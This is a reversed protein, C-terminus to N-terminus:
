NASTRRPDRALYVDGFPPLSIFPNQEGKTVM